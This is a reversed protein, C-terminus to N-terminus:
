SQLEGRADITDGKTTAPLSKPAATFWSENGPQGRIPRLSCDYVSDARIFRGDTQDQIRGGPMPPEVIWAIGKDDRWARVTKGVWGYANPRNILNAGVYRVLDGKKCNM